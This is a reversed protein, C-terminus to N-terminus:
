NHLWVLLHTALEVWRTPCVHAPLTYAFHEQCTNPRLGGVIVSEMCLLGFGVAEDPQPTSLFHLLLIVVHSPDPM